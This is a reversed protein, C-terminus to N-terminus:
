EPEGVARVLPVPSASDGAFEPVDAIFRRRNVLLSPVNFLRHASDGRDLNLEGQRQRLKLVEYSLDSAIPQSNM